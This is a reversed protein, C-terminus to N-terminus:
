GETATITVRVPKPRPEEYNECAKAAEAKTWFVPVSYGLYRHGSMLDMAAWAKLVKRAKPSRKAMM